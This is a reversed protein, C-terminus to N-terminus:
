EVELLLQMHALRRRLRQRDIDRERDVAGSEDLEDTLEFDDADFLEGHPHRIEIAAASRM